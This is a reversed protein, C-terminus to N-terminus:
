TCLSIDARIIMIKNWQLHNHHWTLLKSIENPPGAVPVANLASFDHFHGQQFTLVVSFYHVLTPFVYRFAWNLYLKVQSWQQIYLTWLTQIIRNKFFRKMSLLQSDICSVSFLSHSNTSIHSYIGQSVSFYRSDPNVPTQILHTLKVSFILVNRRSLLFQGNNIHRDPTWLACNWQKVYLICHNLSGRYFLTRQYLEIYRLGQWFISQLVTPEKMLILLSIPLAHPTLTKRARPTHPSLFFVTNKADRGLRAKQKWGWELGKTQSSARVQILLFM